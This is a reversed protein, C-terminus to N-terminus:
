DIRTCTGAAISPTDDNNDGRVFGEEYIELFRNQKMNLKYSRYLTSCSFEGFNADARVEGPFAPQLQYTQAYCPQADKTGARTITVPYSEITRSGEQLAKVFQLKLVFKTNPNFSTARWRKVSSDYTIGGEIESACFYSGDKGAARSLQQTNLLFLLAAISGSLMRQSM